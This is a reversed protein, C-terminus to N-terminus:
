RGRIRDIQRRDRKTPRGTARDRTLVGLQSERPPPAPSRDVFCGAAASAGVRKDIVDVVELIRQREGLQVTVSDGPVITMSPKASNANVRVHGGRCLATAATRTPTVRIAWLWRDVRGSGV